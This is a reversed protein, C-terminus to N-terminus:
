RLRYEYSGDSTRGSFVIETEPEFAPLNESNLIFEDASIGLRVVNGFPSDDEFAGLLLVMREGCALTRTVVPFDDFRDGGYSDGTWQVAFESNAGFDYEADNGTGHVIGIGYLIVSEDGGSFSTTDAEEPDVITLEDLSL